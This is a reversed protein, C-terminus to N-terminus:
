LNSSKKPPRCQAIDAQDFGFVHIVVGGTIEIPPPILPDLAVTYSRDLEAVRHEDEPCGKPDGSQGPAFQGSRRSDKQITQM